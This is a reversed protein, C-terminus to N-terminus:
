WAITEENRKFFSCYRAQCIWHHTKKFSKIVRLGIGHNAGSLHVLESDKSLLAVHIGIVLAIKVAFSTAM